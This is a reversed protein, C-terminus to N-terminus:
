LENLTNTIEDIMGPNFPINHKTAYIRLAIHYKRDMDDAGKNYIYELTPIIQSITLKDVTIVSIISKREEKLIDTKM